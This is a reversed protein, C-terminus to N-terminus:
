FLWPNVSPIWDNIVMGRLIFLIGSLAILTAAINSFLRGQLRKRGYFGATAVTLLSPITGIGFVLMLMAGKIASGTAAATILMAFLLGCPHLGLLVGALFAGLPDRRDMWIRLRSQMGKNRLLSYRELFGAGHGTRWEDIAWLVMLSGGVFAAIAQIGSTRAAVNVFSGIAGFVAGLVTFMLIRGINHPLHARILITRFSQKEQGATASGLSLSYALVFPGCMGACHVFGQLLGIGLATLLLPLGNM